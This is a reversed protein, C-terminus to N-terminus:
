LSLQPFSVQESSGSHLKTVSLALICTAAAAIRGKTELSGTVFEMKKRIWPGPWM